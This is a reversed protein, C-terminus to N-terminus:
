TKLKVKKQAVEANQLKSVVPGNRKLGGGM